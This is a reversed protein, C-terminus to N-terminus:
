TILFQLLFQLLQLTCRRLWTYHQISAQSSVLSLYSTSTLGCLMLCMYKVNFLSSVSSHVSHNLYNFPLLQSTFVFTFARLSLTCCENEGDLISLLRQGSLSPAKHWAKVWPQRAVPEEELLATCLNIEKTLM